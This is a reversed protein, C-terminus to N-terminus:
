GFIIYHIVTLLNLLSAGFNRPLYRHKNKGRQALSVFFDKELNRLEEDWLEANLLPLIIYCLLYINAVSIESHWIDNQHIGAETLLGTQVLALTRSICQHM